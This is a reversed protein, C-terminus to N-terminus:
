TTFSLVRTSRASPRCYFCIYRDVSDFIVLFIFCVQFKSVDASALLACLKEMLPELSEYTYGSYYVMSHNWLKSGDMDNEDLISFLPHLIYASSYISWYLKIGFLFVFLPLQLSLLYITASVMNRCRLNWSTNPFHTTFFM